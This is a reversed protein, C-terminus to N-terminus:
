APVGAVTMLRSITEDALVAPDAGPANAAMLLDDAVRMLLRLQSCRRIIQGYFRINGLKFASDLLSAIYGCGGAAELEDRQRLDDTLTVIDCHAGRAALRSIAQFVVKNEPLFFDEAGIGVNVAGAGDYMLACLLFREAELNHPLAPVEDAHV